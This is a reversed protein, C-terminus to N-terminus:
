REAGYVIRSSAEYGCNRCEFWRQVKAGDAPKGGVVVDGDLCEPCSMEPAPQDRLVDRFTNAEKTEYGRSWIPYGDVLIAGRWKHRYSDPARHQVARAGTETNQYALTPTRSERAWNTIRPM